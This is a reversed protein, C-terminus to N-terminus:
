RRLRQSSAAVSAAPAESAVVAVRSETHPMPRAPSASLDLRATFGIEPRPATAVGCHISLGQAMARSHLAQRCLSSRRGHSSEHHRFTLRDVAATRGHVWQRPLLAAHALPSCTQHPPLPPIPPHIATATGPPLNRGQVLIQRCRVHKVALEGPLAAECDHSVTPRAPVRVTDSECASRCAKRLQSPELNRAACRSLASM